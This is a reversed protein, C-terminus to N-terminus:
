QDFGPTDWLAGDPDVSGDANRKLFQTMSQCPSWYRHAKVDVVDDLVDWSTALMNFV